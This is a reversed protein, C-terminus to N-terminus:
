PEPREMAEGAQSHLHRTDTAQIIISDTLTGTPIGVPMFPHITHAVCSRITTIRGAMGTTGHIMRRSGLRPQQIITTSGMVIDLPGM